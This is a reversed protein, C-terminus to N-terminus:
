TTLTVKITHIRISGELVRSLHLGQYQTSHITISRSNCIIAWRDIIPKNTSTKEVTLIMTTLSHAKKATMRRETMIMTMKQSQRRSLIKVTIRVKMVIIMVALIRIKICKISNMSILALASLQLQRPWGKVSHSSCPTTTLHTLMATRKMRTKNCSSNISMRNQSNAQGRVPVCPPVQSERKHPRLLLIRWMTGRLFVPTVLTFM